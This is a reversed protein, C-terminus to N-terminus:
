KWWALIFKKLQTAYITHTCETRRRYMAPETGKEMDRELKRMRYRELKWKGTTRNRDCNCKIHSSVSKDEGLCFQFFFFFSQFRAIAIFRHLLPLPLNYIPIQTKNEDTRPKIHKSYVAYIFCKQHLIIHLTMDPSTHSVGPWQGIHVVFKFCYTSSAIAVAGIGVYWFISPFLSLSLSLSLFVSFWWANLWGM